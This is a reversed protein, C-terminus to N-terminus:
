RLTPEQYGHYNAPNHTDLFLGDFFGVDTVSSEDSMATPCPLLDLRGELAGAVGSLMEQSIVCDVPSNKM